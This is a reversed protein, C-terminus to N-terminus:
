TKKAIYDGQVEFYTVKFTMHTNFGSHGLLSISTYLINPGKAHRM